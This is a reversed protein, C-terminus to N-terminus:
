RNGPKRLMPPMELNAWLQNGSASTEMACAIRISVPPMLRAIPASTLRPATIAAVVMAPGSPTHRAADGRNSDGPEADAREAADDDDAQAQRRDDHRQGAGEDDGATASSMRGRGPPAM